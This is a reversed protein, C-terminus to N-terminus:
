RKIIPVKLISLGFSAEVEIKNTTILDNISELDFVLHQIRFAELKYSTLLILCMLHVTIVGRLCNM